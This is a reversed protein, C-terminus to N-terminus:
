CAGINGPSKNAKIDGQLEGLLKGAIEAPLLMAQLSTRLYIQLLFIQVAEVLLCRVMHVAWHMVWRVM